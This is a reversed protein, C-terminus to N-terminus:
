WDNWRNTTFNFGAREFIEKTTPIILTGAAYCGKPCIVGHETRTLQEGCCDCDVPFVLEGGVRKTRMNM